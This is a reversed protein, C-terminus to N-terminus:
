TTLNRVTFAIKASSTKCLYWEDDKDPLYMDASLFADYVKKITGYAQSSHPNSKVAEMASWLYSRALRAAPKLEESRYESLLAQPCVM